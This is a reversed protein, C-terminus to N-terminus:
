VAQNNHTQFDVPPVAMIVGTAGGIAIFTYTLLNNM